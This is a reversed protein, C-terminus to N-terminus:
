ALRERLLADRIMKTSFRLIDLEKRLPLPQEVLIQLLRNCPLAWSSRRCRLLQGLDEERVTMLTRAADQVGSTLNEAPPLGIRLKPTQARAVATSVM